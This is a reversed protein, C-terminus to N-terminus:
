FRVVGSVAERDQALTVKLEELAAAADGVRVISDAAQKLRDFDNLAAPVLLTLDQRTHLTPQYASKELLAGLLARVPPECAALQQQFSAQKDLGIQKILRTQHHMDELTIRTRASALKLGTDAARKERDLHARLAPGHDPGEARTHVMGGQMRSNARKVTPLWATSAQKVPEASAAVPRTRARKVAVPDAISPEDHQDLAMAQKFSQRNVCWVLSSCLQESYGQDNAHKAILENLNGGDARHREVLQAAEAMLQPKRDM